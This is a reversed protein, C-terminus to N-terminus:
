MFWDNDRNTFLLIVVTHTNIITGQKIRNPNVIVVCSFIKHIFMMVAICHLPTTHVTLRISCEVTILPKSQAEVSSDTDDGDDDHHVSLIACLSSHCMGDDDNNSDKDDNASASANITKTLQKNAKNAKALSNLTAQITFFDCTFQVHSTGFV